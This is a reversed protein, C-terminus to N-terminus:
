RLGALLKVTPKPFALLKLIQILSHLDLAANRELNPLVEVGKKAGVAGFVM